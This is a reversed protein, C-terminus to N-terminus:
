ADSGVPDKGSWEAHLTLVWLKTPPRIGRICEGPASRPGPLLSTLADAARPAAPPARAGRRGCVAAAQPLLTRAAFQQPPAPLRKATCPGSTLCSPGPFQWAKAALHMHPPKSAGHAEGGQGFSVPGTSHDTKM